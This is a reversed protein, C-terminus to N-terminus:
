VTRSMSTQYGTSSLSERMLKTCNDGRVQVHGACCPKPVNLNSSVLRLASAQIAEKNDIIHYKSCFDYLLVGFLIWPRAVLNLTLPYWCVILVGFGINQVDRVILICSM